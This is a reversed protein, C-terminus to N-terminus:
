EEIKKFEVLDKRIQKRNKLYIDEPILDEKEIQKKEKSM